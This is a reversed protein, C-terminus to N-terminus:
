WDLGIEIMPGHLADDYFTFTKSAEYTYDQDDLNVQLPRVAQGPEEYQATVTYRGIPIDNIQGGDPSLVLTEGTSGDILPGQPTFTLKVYSDDYNEPWEFNTYVYALAGHYGGGPIEGRVRWTFNRVAGDVGAFAQENDSELRIMYYQEEFTTEIYAAGQWSSPMIGNLDIRYYGDADTVDVLNSDYLLTNDAFVEVGQIPEGASNTVRGKMIYPEPTTAGAPPNGPETPVSGLVALQIELDTQPPTVQGSIEGYYDGDGFFDGDGNVDKVAYLDYAVNELGSLTFTGSGGSGTVEIEFSKQQDCSEEVVYCAVVYTGAVDGRQPARVTGSFEPVQPAPRNTPQACAAMTFCLLSLLIFRKLHQM